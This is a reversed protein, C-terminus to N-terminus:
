AAAREYAERWLAWFESDDADYDFNDNEMAEVWDAFTTEGAGLDEIIAEIQWDPANKIFDHFGLIDELEDQSLRDYLREVGADVKDKGARRSIEVGQMALDLLRSGIGLAKAAESINGDYFAVIAWLEYLSATDGASLLERATEGEPIYVRPREPEPEPERERPLPLLRERLEKREARPEIPPPPTRRAEQRLERQKEIPARVYSRREGATTIYRQLRREASRYAIKDRVAIKQALQKGYSSLGARGDPRRLAKMLREIQADNARRQLM